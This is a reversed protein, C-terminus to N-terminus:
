GLSLFVDDEHTQCQGMEPILHSEAEAGSDIQVAGSLRNENLNDFVWDLHDRLTDYLKLANARCDFMFNDNLVIPATPCNTDLEPEPDLAKEVPPQPDPELDAQPTAPADPEENQTLTAPDETEAPLDELAPEFPEPLQNEFIDLKVNDQGITVDQTVTGSLDGGGITVTYNGAPLALSYGGADWSATQFTGASGEALIQVGAQGEGIDYFSDGDADDIIVGTLYALGTDAFLQTAMYSNTYNIGGTAFGGTEVGIGIESFASNMFNQRHGLSNWLGAHLGEIETVADVPGTSGSWAINEGWRQVSYGTADIRNGPNTGTGPDTHAFFDRDLMARSHDAAAQELDPQFALPQVPTASVGAGLGTGAQAAAAQPNARAQNVLEIFLQEEASPGAFSLQLPNPLSPTM